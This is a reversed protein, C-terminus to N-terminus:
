VRRRLMLASDGWLSGRRVLDDKAFIGDWVEVGIVMGMGRRREGISTLVEKPWSSRVSSSFALAFLGYMNM